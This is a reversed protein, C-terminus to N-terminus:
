DRSVRYSRFEMGTVASYRRLSDRSSTLRRGATSRTFSVADLKLRSIFIEQYFDRLFIFLANFCMRGVRRDSLNM